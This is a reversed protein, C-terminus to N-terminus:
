IKEINLLKKIKDRREQVYTRLDSQEKKENSLGMLEISANKANEKSPAVRIFALFPMWPLVYISQRVQCALRRFTERAEADEAKRKNFKEVIEPLESILKEESLILRNAYFDLAFAVEGLVKKYDQIPSIFIKDIYQGLIFVVVGSIIVESLETDM